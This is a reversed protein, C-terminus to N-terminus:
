KIFHIIKLFWERYLTIERYITKIIYYNMKQPVNQPGVEFNRFLSIHNTKWAGYGGKHNRNNSKKKSNHKHNFSLAVVDTSIVIMFMIDFTLLHALNFFDIQNKLKDQLTCRLVVRWNIRRLLLLFTKHLYAIVGPPSLPDNKPKSHGSNEKNKRLSFYCTTVKKSFFIKKSVDFFFELVCSGQCFMMTQYTFPIKM